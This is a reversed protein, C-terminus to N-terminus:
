SRKKPKAVCYSKTRDFANFPIHAAKILNKKELNNLARQVRVVGLFEIEDAIIRVSACVWTKGDKEQGYYESGKGTLWSLVIAEVLGHRKAIDTSFKFDDTM